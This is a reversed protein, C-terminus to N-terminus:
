LISVSVNPDFDYCFVSPLMLNTMAKCQRAAVMVWLLEAAEKRGNLKDM